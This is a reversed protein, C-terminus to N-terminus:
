KLFIMILFTMFRVKRKWLGRNVIIGKDYKHRPKTASRDAHALSANSRDAHASSAVSRDARESSAKSKSRDKRTSSATLRDVRAPSAKSQDVRTPEREERRRGGAPLPPLSTGCPRSSAPRPRAGAAVPGPAARGEERQSLARTVRVPPARGGEAWRVTACPMPTAAAVSRPSSPNWLSYDSLNEVARM